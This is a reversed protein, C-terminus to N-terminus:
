DTENSDVYEDVKQWGLITPIQGSMLREVTMLHEVVAASDATDSLHYFSHNGAKPDDDNHICTGYAKIGTELLLDNAIATHVVISKGAVTVVNHLQLQFDNM